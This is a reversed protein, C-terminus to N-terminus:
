PLVTRTERAPFIRLVSERPFASVFIPQQLLELRLSSIAVNAGKLTAALMRCQFYSGEFANNAFRAAYAVRIGTRGGFRSFGIASGFLFGFLLNCVFPVASFSFAPFVVCCRTLRLWPLKVGQRVAGGSKDGDRCAFPSV